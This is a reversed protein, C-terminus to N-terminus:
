NLEEFLTNFLIFAINIQPFFGLILIFSGGITFRSFLNVFKCDAENSHTDLRTVPKTEYGFAPVVPNDTLKSNEIGSSNIDRKRDFEIGLLYLEPYVM